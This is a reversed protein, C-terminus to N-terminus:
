WGFIRDEFLRTFTVEALVVAMWMVMAVVMAVVARPDDQGGYRSGTGRWCM